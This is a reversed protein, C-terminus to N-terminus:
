INGKIFSDIGAKLSIFLYVLIVGLFIVKYTEINTDTVRHNGKVSLSVSGIILLGMAIYLILKLPKKRLEKMSNAM